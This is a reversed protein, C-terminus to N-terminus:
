FTKTYHWVIEADYREMVKGDFTHKWIAGDEGRWQIFSGPTVYPAVAALFEEQSGNKFEYGHLALDGNEDYYLTFGLHEFISEATFLVEDYNWPLFWYCANPNDSISTSGEPKVNGTMTRKTDHKANLACMANYADDIKFKDITFNAKTIEINYGM